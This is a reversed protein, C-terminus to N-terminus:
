QFLIDEVDAALKNLQPQLFNKLMEIYRVATITVVSGDEVEFFFPVLFGFGGM